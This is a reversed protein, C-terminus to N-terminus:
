KLYKRYNEAHGPDILIMKEIIKRDRDFLDLCEMYHAQLFNIASEQRPNDTVAEHLLDLAGACYRQATSDVEGAYSMGLFFLDKAKRFSINSRSLIYEIDESREEWGYAFTADFKAQTVLLRAKNYYPTGMLQGMKDYEWALVLYIYYNIFGLMPDYSNEDHILATGDQYPFRWYKDGYQLDEGNSIMFSGSYRPEYSVSKDQLIIQIKVPIPEDLYEGTWDYDNVYVELEEALNRLKEQKELPLRELRLTIDSKIQQAMISPCLSMILIILMINIIKLKRSVIM